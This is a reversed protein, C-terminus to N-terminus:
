YVEMYIKDVQKKFLTYMSYYEHIKDKLEKNSHIQVGTKTKLSNISNLFNDM